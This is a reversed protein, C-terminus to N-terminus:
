STTHPNSSASIGAWIELMHHNCSTKFHLFSQPFSHYCLLYRMISCHRPAGFRQSMYVRRHLAATVLKALYTLALSTFLIHHKTCRTKLM